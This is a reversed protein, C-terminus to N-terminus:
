NLKTDDIFYIVVLTSLDFLAIKNTESTCIELDIKHGECYRM